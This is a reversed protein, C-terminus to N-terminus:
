DHVVHLSRPGGAQGADQDAGALVALAVERPARGVHDDIRQRVYGRQQIDTALSGAGIGLTCSVIPNKTRATKVTPQTQPTPANIRRRSGPSRNQVQSVTACTTAPTWASTPMM